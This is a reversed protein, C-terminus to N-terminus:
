KKEGAAPAPAPAATPAAPPAPAAAANKKGAKQKPEFRKRDEANTYVFAEINFISNGFGSKISKIAILDSAVKLKDTVQQQVEALSPTKAVELDLRVERRRLLENKTDSIINM